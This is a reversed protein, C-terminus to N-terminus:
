SVALRTASGFFLCFGGFCFVSGKHDMFMDSSKEFLIMICLLKLVQM